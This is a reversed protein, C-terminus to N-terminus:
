VCSWNNSFNMGIKLFSYSMPLFRRGWLLDSVKVLGPTSNTPCANLRGLGGLPSKECMRTIPFSRFNPLTSLWISRFFPFWWNERPPSAGDCCTLVVSSSQPSLWGVGERDRSPIPDEHRVDEDTWSTRSKRVPCALVGIGGQQM